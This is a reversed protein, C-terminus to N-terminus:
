LRSGTQKISEEFGPPQRAVDELTEARREEEETAKM